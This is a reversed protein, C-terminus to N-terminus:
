ARGRRASRPSALIVARPESGGERAALADRFSLEPCGRAVCVVEARSAAPETVPEADPQSRSLAASLATLRRGGAGVVLVESVDYGVSSLRAITGAVHSWGVEVVPFAGLASLQDRRDLPRTRRELALAVAFALVLGGIVGLLLAKRPSFGTSTTPNSLATVTDALSAGAGDGNRRLAQSLGLLGARAAAPDSAVLRAYVLNTRKEAIMTLGSAIESRSLGSSKAVASILAPEEPLLHAYTSALRTSQTPDPPNSRSRVSYASTASVSLHALALAAAGGLVGGLLILWLRRRLFPLTLPTSIM